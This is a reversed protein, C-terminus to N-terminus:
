EWAALESEPLPEDFDDPVVFEMPGFSRQPIAEIPSLRVIPVGARAIVIETGSEAQALLESLRTKAEQVNVQVTSPM